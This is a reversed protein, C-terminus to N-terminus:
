SRRRRKRLVTLGGLALLSLTAPEPVLLSIESESGGIPLGGSDLAELRLTYPSTEARDRAGADALDAFTLFYDDLSGDLDTDGLTALLTDPLGEPGGSISWRYDPDGGVGDGRLWIGYLGGMKDDGGPRVTATELPLGNQLDTAPDTIQTAPEAVIYKTLFMDAGGASTNGDLDGFTYGTVYCVNGSSDVSVGYGIDDSSSGLQETWQKVGDTNYKTLFIDDDGAGANGDLDGDTYGTVYANGSSDISVGYGRDGGTSGLQETWQEAGDTNYKTLFMDMGGASTNGDFEGYTFGTVYANGSSDVSVGYGYEVTSTGLQKTWQKVGNTNYKTLIIDDSGVSINGDLAGNTYGTVYAAGSSDVSVGHGKDTGIAGLQRTWQKVGSTNYKTLYIDALGQNSNGDLGGYTYGTIYAAGSSDVSVGYCWDSTTSGLQRTWQNVGDTSYKTLFIDTGGASTNGDLGGNTIGAVYASGSSDVSVGYGHNTSSTGLQRTWQKAGDTDYKTLFIDDAGASTNGDLGAATYGTVYANGSSDVSVGRGYDNVSTGLQRTWDVNAASAASVLSVCAAAACMIQIAKKM